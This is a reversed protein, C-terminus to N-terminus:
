LVQEQCLRWDRKDGMCEVVAIHGDWCGSKRIIAEVRDEEDGDKAWESPQPKKIPTPVQHQSAFYPLFYDSIEFINCLFMELFIKFFFILSCKCIVKIYFSQLFM